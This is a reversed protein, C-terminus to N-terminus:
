LPKGRFQVLNTVCMRGKKWADQINDKQTGLFLHKPNVCLSNDCRHLTCLGKPISGNHIKWSVRHASQYRKEYLIVGIEPHGPVGGGHKAGIWFWCSKTKHVYKFFREIVPMREYQTNKFTHGIIFRRPKGKIYGKGAQTYKAIKTKGGCGCL